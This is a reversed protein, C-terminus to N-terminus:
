LFCKEYDFQNNQCKYLPLFFHILSQCNCSTTFVHKVRLLSKIQWIEMPFHNQSVQLPKKFAQRQKWYLFMLTIMSFHLLSSKCAHQHQRPANINPMCKCLVSTRLNHASFKETTSPIPPVSRAASSFCLHLSLAYSAACLLLLM